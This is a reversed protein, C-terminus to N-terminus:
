EQSDIMDWVSQLAIKYDEATRKGKNQKYCERVRKDLEYVARITLTLIASDHCYQDLRHESIHKQVSEDERVQQAVEAIQEPTFDFHMTKTFRPTSNVFSHVWSGRSNRYNMVIEVDASTHHKTIHHQEPPVICVDPEQEITYGQQRFTNIGDMKVHWVRETDIWVRYPLSKVATLMADFGGGTMMWYQPGFEGTVTRKLTIHDSM